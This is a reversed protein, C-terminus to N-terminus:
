CKKDFMDFRKNNTEVSMISYILHKNDIEVSRNLYMFVSIFNIEACLLRIVRLVLRIYLRLNVWCFRLWHKGMNYDQSIKVDTLM